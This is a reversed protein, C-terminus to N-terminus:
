LDRADRVEVVVVSPPPPPFQGWKHRRAVAWAEEVSTNTNTGHGQGSSALQFWWVPFWWYRVQAEYGLHCDRVVRYKNGM